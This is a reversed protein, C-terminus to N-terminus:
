TTPSSAAHVAAREEDAAGREHEGRARERLAGAVKAMQDLDLLQEDGDVVARALQRQGAAGGREGPAEAVVLGLVQGAEVVRELDLRGRDGRRREGVLVAEQAEGLAGLRERDAGVVAGDRRDAVVSQARLQRGDRLGLRAMRRGDAVQAVLRRRRARQVLARRELAHLVREVQQPPLLPVSSDGSRIGPAQFWMDSLENSARAVSRAPSRSSSIKRRSASCDDYSTARSGNESFTRSSFRRRVSPLPATVRSSMSASAVQFAFSSGDLSIAKVGARTSICSKVPTGATTSRAAIRSAIASWSAPSAAFILGSTGASSTM